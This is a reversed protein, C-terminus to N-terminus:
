IGQDPGSPSKRAARELMSAQMEQQFTIKALMALDAEIWINRLTNWSKQEVVFIVSVVGVM